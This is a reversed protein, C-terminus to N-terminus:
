AGQGQLEAMTALLADVAGQGRQDRIKALLEGRGLPPYDRLLMRAETEHRWEEADSFVVRGDLLEVMTPGKWPTNM